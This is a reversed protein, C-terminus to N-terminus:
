YKSIMLIGSVCKMLTNEDRKLKFANKVIAFYNLWESQNNILTNLEVRMLDDENPYNRSNRPIIM